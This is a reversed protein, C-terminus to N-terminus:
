FVNKLVALLLGGYVFFVWMTTDGVGASAANNVTGFAYTGSWSVTRGGTADQVVTVTCLGGNVLNSAAITINGTLVVSHNNGTAFNLTVSAAYTDVM